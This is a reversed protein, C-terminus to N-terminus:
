SASYAYLFWDGSVNGSSPEIKFFRDDTAAARYAARTYLSATTSLIQSTLSTTNTKLSSDTPAIIDIYISAQGASNGPGLNILDTNGGSSNYYSSSSTLYTLGDVSTYGGVSGSASQTFGVIILKFHKYGAAYEDFDITLNSAASLTGSDILSLGASNSQVQTDVYAKTSQQSPVATASNSAMNDEDLIVVSDSAEVTAYIYGDGAPNVVLAKGAQGSLDPIELDTLTSTGTLKLVRNIQSQIYQIQHTLKDLAAETLENPFKSDNTYDQTQTLPPQKFIKITKGSTPATVFTVTGAAGTGSGTLTYHTTLTQLTRVGTTDDYVYVKVWSNDDFAFGTSFETTSGNGSYASSETTTVSVVM